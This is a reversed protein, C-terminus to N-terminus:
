KPSLECRRIDLYWHGDRSVVRTELVRIKKTFLPGDTVFTHYEGVEGCPTVGKQRALDAIFDPDIERGLWEEGLLDARTAIVVARFGTDIFERLVSDQNEGWLPLHANIDCESCVREVWERHEEVDIDGFVGATVGWSKFDHIVKKFESEYGDWSTQRQILPVGIAQAHMELWETSLGHSRSMHSDETAMNLLYCGKIGDQLARDFALCSDKGGSWSIFAQEM